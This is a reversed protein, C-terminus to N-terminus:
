SQSINYAMLCKGHRIYLNGNGIVPHSFHEKTGRTVKFTSVEKLETGNPDVLHVNGKEDYLYVMGDADITAGRGIKLQQTVIGSNMDLTMLEQKRHGTAILQNGIKVVGGMINDFPLCRWVEKVSEGDDALKLKVTHNGDGVVYYLFGNDFIPTNSLVNCATDQKHTFLLKGNDADIGLMTLQSFTLLINHRGQHIINPSCFASVEGVGKCKWIMEGTMRNLAVVNTDAGGPSCYIMQDKVLLGETYGFQTNKGHLASFLNTSWVKRGDERNFCAIEGKGTSVYVMNDVVTPASRSGPFNVAWEDGYAVKWRLKGKLDFSYLYATSDTAGTVFLADHTVVPSGYGDGVTDSAWVLKPGEAPWQKLLGKDPYHGDRQPGRWQAIEPQIAFAIIHTLLFLSLILIRMM